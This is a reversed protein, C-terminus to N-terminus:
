AGCQLAFRQHFRGLSSRSPRTLRLFNLFEDTVWLSGVIGWMSHEAWMATGQDRTTQTTNM